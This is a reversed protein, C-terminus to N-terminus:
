GIDSGAGGSGLGLGPFALCAEVYSSFDLDVSVVELVLVRLAFVFVVLVVHGGKCRHM